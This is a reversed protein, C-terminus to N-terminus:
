QGIPFTNGDQTKLMSNNDIFLIEAGKEGATQVSFICQPILPLFLGNKLQVQNANRRSDHLPILVTRKKKALNNSKTGDALKIFHKEPKSSIDRNTFFKDNKVIHTRAGCDM